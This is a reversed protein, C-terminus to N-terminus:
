IRMYKENNCSTCVYKVITIPAAPAMNREKPDPSLSPVATISSISNAMTMGGPTITKKPLKEVLTM